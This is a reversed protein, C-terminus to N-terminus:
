LLVEVDKRGEGGNYMGIKGRRRAYAAGGSGIRGINTTGKVERGVIKNKM